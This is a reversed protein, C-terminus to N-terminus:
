SPSLFNFDDSTVFLQLSCCIYVSYYKIPHIFVTINVLRVDNPDALSLILSEGM